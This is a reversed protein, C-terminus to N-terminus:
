GTSRTAVAPRSAAVRSAARGRHGVHGSQRRAGNTRSGLWPGKSGKRWAAKGDRHRPVLVRCGGHAVSPRPACSGHETERRMSRCPMEGQGAAERWGFAASEGVRRSPRESSGVRARPGACTVVLNSGARVFSKVQRCDCGGVCNKELRRHSDDTCTAYAARGHYVSTAGQDSIGQTRAAPTDAVSGVPPPRALRPREDRRVPKSLRGAIADRGDFVVPRPSVATRSCLRTYHPPRRHRRAM